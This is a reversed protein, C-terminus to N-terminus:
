LVCYWQYVRYVINCLESHAGCVKEQRRYLGVFPTAETAGRLRETAMPYRLGSHCTLEKEDRWAVRAVTVDIKTNLKSSKWGGQGKSGFQPTRQDEWGKFPVIVLCLLKGVGEACSGTASQWM